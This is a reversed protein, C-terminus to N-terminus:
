FDANVTIKYESRYQNLNALLNVSFYPGDGYPTYRLWQLHLPLAAYVETDGSNVFALRRDLNLAIGTSFYLTGADNLTHGVMLAHEQLYGDTNCESSLSGFAQCVIYSGLGVHDGYFELRYTVQWGQREYQLLFGSSIDWHHYDPQEDFMQISLYLGDERTEAARGPTVALLTFFVLSVRLLARYLM